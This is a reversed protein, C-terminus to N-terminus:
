PRRARNQGRDSRGALYPTRALDGRGERWVWLWVNATASVARVFSMQAMGFAPGRDDFAASSRAPGARDPFYAAVVIPYGRNAQEAVQRVFAAVDFGRDMAVYGNFVPPFRGLRSEAYAAFDAHVAAGRPDSASTNLPFAADATLHSLRGLEFALDRFTGQAGLIAIAREASAAADRDLSGGSRDPHLRHSEPRAERDPARAGDLLAARSRELQTALSPPMLEVALLVIREHSADTWAGAGAAPWTALLGGLLLLVPRRM